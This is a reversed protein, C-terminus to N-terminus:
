AVNCRAHSCYNWIEAFLISVLLIALLAAWGIWRLMRHKDSRQAVTATSAGGLVAIVYTVLLADIHAETFGGPAFLPLVIAWVVCILAVYAFARALGRTAVNTMPNIRIRLNHCSSQGDSITWAQREVDYDGIGVRIFRV